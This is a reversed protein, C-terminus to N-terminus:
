TIDRGHICEHGTIHWHPALKADIVEHNEVRCTMKGVHTPGLQDITIDNFHVRLMPRVTPGLEPKCTEYLIPQRREVVREANKDLHRDAHGRMIRRFRVNYHRALRIPNAEHRQGGDHQDNFNRVGREADIETMFTVQVRSM